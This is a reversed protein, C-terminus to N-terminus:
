PEAHGKYPSLAAKIIAERLPKTEESKRYLFEAEILENFFLQEDFVVNHEPKPQFTILFHHQNESIKVWFYRLYKQLALIIAERPYKKNINISRM